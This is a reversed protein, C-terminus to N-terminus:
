TRTQTKSEINTKRCEAPRSVTIIIEKFVIDHYSVSMKSKNRGYYIRRLTSDTGFGVFLTHVQIVPTLIYLSKMTQQIIQVRVKTGLVTIGVTRLKVNRVTGNKYMDTNGVTKEM